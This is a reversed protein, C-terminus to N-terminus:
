IIRAGYGKIALGRRLPKPEAEKIESLSLKAFIAAKTTPRKVKKEKGTGM